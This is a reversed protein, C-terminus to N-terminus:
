ALFPKPKQIYLNHKLGDVFLVHHISLSQPNSIKRIGIIKEKANDGFNVHGRDKADLKNFQEKYGTM